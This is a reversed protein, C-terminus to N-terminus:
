DFNPKSNKSGSLAKKNDSGAWRRQFAGLEGSLGTKNDAEVIAVSDVVARKLNKLADPFPHDSYPKLFTRAYMDPDDTDPIIGDAYKWQVALEPGMKLSTGLLKLASTRGVISVLRNLGGWGPSVGLHGHVFQCYASTGMVRFDCATSLEAGGGVAPGEILALSLLNSNRISNLTESMMKSMKVGMEPTNIVEKALNLDLGSCFVNSDGTSRVILCTARDVEENLLRDVAVALEFLMKGSMANKRAGNEIVLEAVQDEHLNLTIAGEGHTKVMSLFSAHDAALTSACVHLGRSNKINLLMHLPIM